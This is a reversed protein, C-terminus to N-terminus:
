NHRLDVLQVSEGAQAAAMLGTMLEGLAGDDLTSADIVQVQRPQSGSTASAMEFASVAQAEEPSDVVYFFTPVGTVPRAAVAPATKASGGSSTAQWAGVGIGASLALAAAAIAVVYQTKIRKWNGITTAGITLNM